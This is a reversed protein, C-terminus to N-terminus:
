HGLRVQAHLEAAIQRARGVRVAAAQGIVLRRTRGGIRYQFLWSRAPPKNSHAGNWRNVRRIRLGFGTVDDDFWIRDDQGAELGLTQIARETLKVTLSRGGHSADPFKPSANEQGRGSVM